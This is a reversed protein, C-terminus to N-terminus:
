VLTTTITPHVRHHPLFSITTRNQESIIDHKVHYYIYSFPGYLTGYYIPANLIDTSIHLIEFITIVFLFIFSILVAMIPYIPLTRIFYRFIRPLFSKWSLISSLLLLSEKTIPQNDGVQQQEQQQQQHIHRRVAFYCDYYLTVIYSTAVFVIRPIHYLFIFDFFQHILDGFGSIYDFMNWIVVVMTIIRIRQNTNVAVGLNTSRVDDNYNHNYASYAKRGSSTNSNGSSSLNNYETALYTLYLANVVESLM